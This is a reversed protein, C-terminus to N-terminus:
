NFTLKLESLEKGIRNIGNLIRQSQAESPRKKGSVYQSLLTPNMGIKEALVKANIVNYYQFFQQFDIELKIQDPKVVLNKEELYFNLAEVSNEFVENMSDGTTFVPFDMSYASFGTDTKEIIMRYKKM